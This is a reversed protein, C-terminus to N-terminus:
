STWCGIPKASPFEELHPILRELRKALPRARKKSLEIWDLGMMLFNVPRRASCLLIISFLRSPISM